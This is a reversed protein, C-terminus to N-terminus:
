LRKCCQKSGSTSRIAHICGTTELSSNYTCKEVIEFGFHTIEYVWKSLKRNSITSFCWFNSVIMLITFSHGNSNADKVENKKWNWLNLYWKCFINRRKKSYCLLIQFYWIDYRIDHCIDNLKDQYIDHSIWSM